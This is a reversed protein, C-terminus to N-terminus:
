RGIGKCKDCVFIAFTDRTVDTTLIVATPKRKYCRDCKASIEIMNSM